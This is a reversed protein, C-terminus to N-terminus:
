LLPLLKKIKILMLFLCMGNKLLNRKQNLKKTMQLLITLIKKSMLIIKFKHHSYIPIKEYAIKHDDDKIQKVIKRIVFSKGIELVRKPNPFNGNDVIHKQTKVSLKGEYVIRFFKLRDQSKGIVDVANKIIKDSNATEDTVSISIKNM